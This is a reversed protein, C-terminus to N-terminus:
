FGVGTDVNIEAGTDKIKGLVGGVVPTRQLWRGGQGVGFQVGGSGNDGFLLGMGLGRYIEVSTTSSYQNLDGNFYVINLSGSM